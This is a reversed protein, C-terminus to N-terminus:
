GADEVKVKEFYPKVAAAMAALDESSYPRVKMFEPDLTNQPLFPQLVYEGAGRLWEGIALVDDPGVLGPVVTTRFYYPLGSNRILDSSGAVKEVDVGSRTVEQYRELPAKIDMAIWDVLGKSILNELAGPFSGNTDIKVLLGRDKIVRALEEIDDHMLPEGGSICIGELWNRREDLFSLFIDAPVTPVSGPELVLEANHCYPCRFPCGGLFVTSSIHGPFDKSSFKELGKIEVM